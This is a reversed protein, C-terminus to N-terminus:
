RFIAKLLEILGALCGSSQSQSRSRPEVPLELEEYGLDVTDDFKHYRRPKGSSKAVPRSQGRLQGRYDEMRVTRLGTPTESVRTDGVRVALFDESAPADAPGVTHHGNFLGQPAEILVSSHNARHSVPVPLILRGDVALTSNWCKVSEELYRQAEGTLYFKDPLMYMTVTGRNTNCLTIYWTKKRKALYRLSAYHILQDLGVDERTHKLELMNVKNLLADSRGKVRYGLVEYSLNLNAKTNRETVVELNSACMAIAKRYQDLQHLLTQHSGDCRARYQTSIPIGELVDYILGEVCTGMEEKEYQENLMICPLTDHHQRRVLMNSSYLTQEQAPFTNHVKVLKSVGVSAM